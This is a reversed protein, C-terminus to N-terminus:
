VYWLNFEGSSWMENQQAEPSLSTCLITHATHTTTPSAVLLSMGPFGQPFVRRWHSSFTKLEEALPKSRM